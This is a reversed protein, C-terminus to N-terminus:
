HEEEIPEISALYRGEGNGREGAYGHVSGYLMLKRLDEIGVAPVGSATLVLLTFDLRWPEIWEFRKLATGYRTTVPRDMEGDHKLVPTADPRLVPLWYTAPDVYVYNIIKTSFASEGEVRGVLASIRRACDKLHAKVTAARMVCADDHRQFVLMSGEQEPQEAQAAISALVEENIEDLSMGGPPQVRPTRAKTWAQVLEPDAPVSSCIKTMGMWQARFRSWGIAPIASTRKKPPPPAQEPSKPEPKRSV